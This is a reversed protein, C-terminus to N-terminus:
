ITARFTTPEFGMIWGLFSVLSSVNKLDPIEKESPLSDWNGKRNVFVSFPAVRYTLLYEMQTGASATVAGRSFLFGPSFGPRYRRQIRSPKTSLSLQDNPTEQSPRVSSIIRLDSSSSLHPFVSSDALVPETTKQQPFVAAAVRNTPNSCSKQQSRRHTSEGKQM